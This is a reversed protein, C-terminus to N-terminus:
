GAPMIVDAKQMGETPKKQLATKKANMKAWLFGADADPCRQCQALINMMQFFSLRDPVYIM